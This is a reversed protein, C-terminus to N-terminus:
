AKIALAERIQRLARKKYVKKSHRKPGRMKLYDLLEAKEEQNLSRLQAMIQNEITTTEM